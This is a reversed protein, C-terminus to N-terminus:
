LVFLLAAFLALFSDAAYLAVWATLGGLRGHATAVAVYGDSAGSWGMSVALGVFIWGIPNSPLRSAVLGGVIGATFFVAIALGDNTVFHTVVVDSYALKLGTGAFGFAAAIALLSWAVIAATRN